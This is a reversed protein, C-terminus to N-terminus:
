KIQKITQWTSYNQERMRIEKINNKREFVM